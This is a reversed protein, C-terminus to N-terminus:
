RRRPSTNHGHPRRTNNRSRAPRAGAPERTPPEQDRQERITPNGDAIAFPPSDEVNRLSSQDPDSPDSPDTPAPPTSAEAAPTVDDPRPAEADPAEELQPPAAPAPAPLAPPRESEPLARQGSDDPRDPTQEATGEDGTSRVIKVKTIRRGKTGLVTLTLGDYHVTDGITPIKDLQAYIFGGLTEYDESTLNTELEENLEDLSIKADVIFENDSIREFIKEEKDYEDLIDGIIEEVLDEITVLGAVSGYEDLVIAMHVRQQQLEHLLDDLRKSEPVFYAPRVLQRVAKPREHTAMVRLLDKAYLVGIINDISDDFVPIRSQGGQIIIGIAEDVGADAEITVMDIRPVMVERVSTDALEFVNHIMEREEEELVGEQEGVEVLMRLEEETLFPGRRVTQGGFFRVIGGTIFTLLSVLPRLVRSVTEVPGILARAWREPAQVAATKPTIECFILVILSLLITSIIEGYDSFLDLALITAVTSAVIVSVNSIILITSLFNQPQELVRLIRKARADGEEALSRLRIRNVSTLATEAAASMAAFFLATLLLLLLWVDGGSLPRIGFAAVTSHMWPLRISSGDM